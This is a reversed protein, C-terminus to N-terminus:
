DGSELGDTELRWSFPVAEPSRGSRQQRYVGIAQVVTLGAVYSLGTGFLAAYFAVAWNGLHTAFFATSLNLAALAVEWYVIPDLKLQYRKGMWARKEAGLGFKSTREFVPTNRSLIGLAARVTNLMLGSGVVSIFFIRPLASWWRRGLQRQGVAFFLTPALATLNFFYAVGFLAILQPYRQSLMLVAPYLLSLMFLLLHVAYGALHLTAAVKIRLPAPSAWVQPGLNLACELSGRAWRHQQRRFAGMSVPLEAPVVVQRLYESRWGRLLARYSIDLDETLTDARWGGADYLAEKRWVGATGNFNFWLRARWRAFQEVVFHADIAMAQLSTFLSYEPNLHGWRAQVFATDPRFVPLVRRLYNSPPVFDADFMAIYEGDATALGAQLAGAKYGTRDARVAHTINTGREQHRWVAASVIARTEDTSDDLIQIQLLEPPYDLNAAADIAREAVYFENYIPIQVTVKPWGGAPTAAEATEPDLERGLALFSMYIFNLGFVFLMGVVALYLIALPVLAFDLM